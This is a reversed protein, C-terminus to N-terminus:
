KWGPQQKIQKNNNNNYNINNNNRICSCTLRRMLTQVEKEKNATDPYSDLSKVSLFRSMPRGM